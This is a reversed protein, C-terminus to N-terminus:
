NLKFYVLSSNRFGTMNHMRLVIINIFSTLYTIHEKEIRKLYYKACLKKLIVDTKKRERKGNKNQQLNVLVPLIAQTTYKVPRLTLHWQDAVKTLSDIM